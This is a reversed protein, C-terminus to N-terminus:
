LKEGSYKIKARNYDDFNGIDIWEELIPFIMTKLNKNIIMEFFSPMDLNKAKSLLNLVKPDFVYLRLKM